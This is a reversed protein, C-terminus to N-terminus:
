MFIETYPLTHAVLLNMTLTAFKHPLLTTNCGFVLPFIVVQHLFFQLRNERPGSFTFLHEASVRCHLEEWLSHGRAADDYRLLLHEETIQLSAVVGLAAIIYFRCNHPHKARTQPHKEPIILAITFCLRWGLVKMLRQCVQGSSSADFACRIESM